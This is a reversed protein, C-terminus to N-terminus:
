AGVETGNVEAAGPFALRVVEAMAALDVSPTTGTPGL